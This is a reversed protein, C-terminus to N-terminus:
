RSGYNEIEGGKFQIGGKGKEQRLLPIEHMWFCGGEGGTLGQKLQAEQKRSVSWDHGTSTEKKKKKEWTEGM